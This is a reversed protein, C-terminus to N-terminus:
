LEYNLIIEEEKSAEEFTEIIKLVNEKLNEATKIEPKFIMTISIPTEIFGTLMDWLADLNNGYWEPLELREKIERHLDLPYKCESFDINIKKM